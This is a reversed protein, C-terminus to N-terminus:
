PLAPNTDDVTGRSRPEHTTIPLTILLIVISIVRTLPSLVRSILLVTSSIFGVHYLDQMVKLVRFQSFLPINGIMLLAPNIDDVPLLRRSSTTTM